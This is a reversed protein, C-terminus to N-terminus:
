AAASSEREFIDFADAILEVAAEPHERAIASASSPLQV